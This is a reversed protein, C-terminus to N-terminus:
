FPDAKTIYIEVREQGKEVGLIRRSGVTTEILFDNELIGARELVDHISQQLNILDIRRKTLRYVVSAVNVPEEITQSGIKEKQAELQYIAGKEWEIYKKNPLLITRTSSKIGKVVRAIFEDFCATLYVGVIPAEGSLPLDLPKKQILHRIAATNEDKKEWGHNSFSDLFLCMGDFYKLLEDKHDGVELEALLVILKKRWEEVFKKGVKTTVMTQSSKKSPTQGFITLKMWQRGARGNLAPITMLKAISRKSRVGAWM